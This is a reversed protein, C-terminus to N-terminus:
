NIKFNIPITYRVKVPKGNISGPKFDPIMRIVRLAEHDLAEVARDYMEQDEEKPAIVHPAGKLVEAEAISGDKDVLFKIYVKGRLGLDRAVVPYHTNNGIFKMLASEGGPFEPFVELLGCSMRIVTDQKNVEYCATDPSTNQSLLEVPFWVTTIVVANFCSSFLNIKSHISAFLNM